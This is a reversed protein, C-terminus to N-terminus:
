SDVRDIYDIIVNGVKRILARKKDIIDRKINHDINKSALQKLYKSHRKFYVKLPESIEISDNFFVNILSNQLVRLQKNNLYITNKKSGLGTILFQFLDRTDEISM